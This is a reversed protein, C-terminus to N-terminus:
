WLPVFPVFFVFDSAFFPLPCSEAAKNQKEELGQEADQGLVLRWRVLSDHASSM